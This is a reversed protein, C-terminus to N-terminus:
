KRRYDMFVPQRGAKVAKEQYRTQVWDPPPETSDYVCEFSAHRSLCERMWVILQAHDSAVRLIAGTKLVRALRDLNEDGIFRRGVHKKKPWPDAFLVFCRDLSADELADLVLRADNDFVRVNPIKEREVHDLFSAVGNVFPECGIFLIEPHLKAQAALHEGGGFGIEMWAPAPRADKFLFHAPTHTGVPLTIRLQPLLEEILRSKRVHLPRGKRRGYLRSPAREQTELSKNEIV